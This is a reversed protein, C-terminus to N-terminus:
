HERRHNTESITTILWIDKESKNAGADVKQGNKAMVQRCRRNRNPLKLLKWLVGRQGTWERPPRVYIQRTIPGSQLFAGKINTTGIKFSLFTALSQLLRVIFLPANSSDERITDKEADHNGHLVLRAKLIRSGNEDTKVKYM